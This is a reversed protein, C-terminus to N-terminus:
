NGEKLKNIFEKRNLIRDFNKVYEWPDKFNYVRDIRNTSFDIVKSVAGAGLGIVTSMDEMMLINYLGEKGKKSFGTNELGGLTDKQRYMYYPLYGKGRLIASGESVMRRVEEPPASVAGSNKLGAARKVCMTHVTINEPDLACLERLSSIFMPHTEGPLGAILDCNINTFGVERAMYFAQKFEEATHKRGITELVSNNLTQPNISIRVTQPTLKKIVELKERTITDARGAEVTYEYLSDTHFAKKVALLLKELNEASVSTPTGGGIYISDVKIEHSRLLRGAYEVEMALCNIYPEVTNKQKTLPLSVFSCYLCRTPCFPIGIYISVGRRPSKQLVEKEKISVETALEAKERSISYDEMLKKICEEEGMTELNGSALLAPRIGTQSGWPLTSNWMSCFLRYFGTKVANTMNQNETKSPHCSHVYENEGKKKDFNIQTKVTIIGEGKEARSLVYNEEPLRSCLTIDAGLAIHVVERMATEATHGELKLYIKDSM